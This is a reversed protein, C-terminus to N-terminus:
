SFAGMLALFLWVIVFVGLVFWFVLYLFFGAFGLQMGTSNERTKASYIIGLIIATLAFTSSIIVVIWFNITVFSVLSIFWTLELFTNLVSISTLFGVFSSISVSVVGFFRSLVELKWWKSSKVDIEEPEEVKSDKMAPWLSRNLRENFVRFNNLTKWRLFLPSYRSVNKLTSLEESHVKNQSTISDQKKSQQEAQLKKTILYDENSVILKESKEKQAKQTKIVNDVHFGRRYKRKQFFNESVVNSSHHCSILMMSLLLLSVIKM